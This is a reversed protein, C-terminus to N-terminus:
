YFPIYTEALLTLSMHTNAQCEQAAPRATWM